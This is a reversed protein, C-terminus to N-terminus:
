EPDTSEPKFNVKVPDQLRDALPYGYRIAAEQLRTLRYRFLIKNMRMLRPYIPHAAAHDLRVGYVLRVWWELEPARANRIGQRQRYDVYEALAIQDARTYRHQTM